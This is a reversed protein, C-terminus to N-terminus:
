EKSKIIELWHSPLRAGSFAPGHQDGRGGGDGAAAATFSLFFARLPSPRCEHSDKSEGDVQMLALDSVCTWSAGSVCKWIPLCCLFNWVGGEWSDEEVM